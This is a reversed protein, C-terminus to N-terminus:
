RASALAKALSENFTTSWTKSIVEDAIKSLDFMQRYGAPKVFMFWPEIVSSSGSEIRRWIGIHLHRAAVSGPMVVFFGIAKGQKSKRGRGYSHLNRIGSSLIGIMERLAALRPNGRRDMPLKAGPAIQMGAPILGRGRLLGELRKYRRVGGHFLHALSREYPTGGEPADIRLSVSAAMSSVTAAQVKFSRLTYTTAGGQVDTSLHRKVEANVAYATVTLARATAFNTQKSQNALAASMASIGEVKVTLQM